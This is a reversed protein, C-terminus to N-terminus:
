GMLMLAFMAVFGVSMLAASWKFIKRTREPLGRREHESWSRKRAALLEDDTFPGGQQLELRLKMWMGGTLLCGAILIWYLIEQLLSM